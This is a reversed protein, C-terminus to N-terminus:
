RSMVCACQLGTGAAAGIAAAAAAAAAATAAAAAANAAAVVILPIHNYSLWLLCPAVYFVLVHVRILASQPLSFDLTMLRSAFICTRVNLNCLM